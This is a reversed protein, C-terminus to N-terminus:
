KKQVHEPSHLSVKTSSSYSEHQQDPIIDDPLCIQAHADDGNGINKEINEEHEGSKNTSM